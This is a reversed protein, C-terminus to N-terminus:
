GNNINEHKSRNDIFLNRSYTLFGASQGVIIVPDKRCIGYLIICSSGILSLVWFIAPLLSERKISSYWWQYVFRLTFIIQGILGLLFLWLPINKDFLGDINEKGSILFMSFVILPTIMIVFRIVPHITKWGNKININWIYIYYSFIQGLIIVFDERLLGYMYLLFSALLSLKWYIIPSVVKRSKESLIWQIFMRASFLGQALFGLGFLWFNDV